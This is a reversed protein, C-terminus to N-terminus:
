APLLNHKTSVVTYFDRKNHKEEMIESYFHSSVTPFYKKPVLCGSHQYAKQEQCSEPLATSHVIATQNGSLLRQNATIVL